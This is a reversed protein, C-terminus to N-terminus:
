LIKCGGLSSVGAAGQGGGGEWIVFLVFSFAARVAARPEYDYAAYGHHPDDM